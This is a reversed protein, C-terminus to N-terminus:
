FKKHPRLHNRAFYVMMSLALFVCFIGCILILACSPFTVICHSMMSFAFKSMELFVMSYSTFFGPITIWRVMMMTLAGKFNSSIKWGSHASWWQNFGTIQLFWMRVRTQTGVSIWSWECEARSAIVAIVVINLAHVHASIIGETKNMLLLTALFGRQQRQFTLVNKAVKTM